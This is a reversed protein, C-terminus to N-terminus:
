AAVGAESRASAWDFVVVEGGDERLRDYIREGLFSKIGPIIRDGDKYDDITLNSLLLTPRRNEYRENIVDFLILQEAKTDFQIGVEDLVLLDPRVLAAIAESEREAAGRGWSDKIRRIAKLVTLFLATHGDAMIRQCIAAALHNKGTGPRGVFIAGRGTKLADAFNAAYVRAFALAREQGVNGVRYNDLTRDLFRPPIGCQGIRRELLQQRQRQANAQAEARTQAVFEESCQPCRSWAAGFLHRSLYDGHTACHGPRTQMSLTLPNM